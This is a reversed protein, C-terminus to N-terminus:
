PRSLLSLTIVCQPRVVFHLSYLLLGRHAAMLRPITSLHVEEVPSNIPVKDTLLIFSPAKVFKIWLGSYVLAPNTDDVISTTSNLPPTAMARPQPLPPTPIHYLPPSSNQRAVTATSIVVLM